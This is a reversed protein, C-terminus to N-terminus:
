ADPHEGASSLARLMASVDRYFKDFSDARRAMQMDLTAALAPQDTTESYTRQSPMHNRLWEKAGRVSEPNSPGVLDSPLGRKGALSEAAALFWAEFERKALVVAMPKDPRAIRARALLAPGEQAPCGDEWDCDLVIVIGGPGQLLRAAREVHRELQGPQRLSSEPVHLVDPIDVSIAPDAEAAVRRILIPVATKEGHGTVILTLRVPNV